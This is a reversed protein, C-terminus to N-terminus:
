RKRRKLNQDVNGCNSRKKKKKKLKAIKKKDCYDHNHNATQTQCSSDHTWHRYNFVYVFLCYKLNIGVLNSKIDIRWKSASELHRTQQNKHCTWCKHNAEKWQKQEQHIPIRQMQLHKRKFNNGKERQKKKKPFEVRHNM